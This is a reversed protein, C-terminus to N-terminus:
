AACWGDPLPHVVQELQHLHVAQGM